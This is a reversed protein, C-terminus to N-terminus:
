VFLELANACLSLRRAASFKHFFVGIDFSVRRAGKEPGTLFCGSESRGQLAGLDRRAPGGIASPVVLVATVSDCLAPALRFM